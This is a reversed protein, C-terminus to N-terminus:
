ADPLDEVTKMALHLVGVSRVMWLFAFATTHLRIREYYESRPFAAYM